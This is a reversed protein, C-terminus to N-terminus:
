PLIVDRHMGDLRDKLKYYSGSLIIMICLLACLANSIIIQLDGRGIGYTIWFLQMVIYMYYSLLSVDKCTKNKLIKVLQPVLSLVTLTGAFYGIINTTSQEMINDSISAM